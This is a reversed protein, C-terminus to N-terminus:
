ILLLAMKPSNVRCIDCHVACRNWLIEWMKDRGGSIKSAPLFNKGQPNLFKVILEHSIQETSHRDLHGAMKIFSCCIILCTFVECKLYIVSNILPLFHSSYLIKQSTWSYDGRSLSNECVKNSGVKLWNLKKMKKVRWKVM